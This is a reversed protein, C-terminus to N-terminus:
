QRYQTGLVLFDEIIAPMPWMITKNLDHYGLATEVLTMPGDETVAVSASDSSAAGQGTAVSATNVINGRADFEAQTVYQGASSRWTEGVDIKGDHDADGTNFRRLDGRRSRRGVSRQRGPDDFVVNRWQDRDRLWSRRPM